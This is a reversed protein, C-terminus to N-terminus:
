KDQILAELTEYLREPEVPKSLHANMGAQLSRQVDEDFANATMAIIPVSKADPRDLARIAETASLGDLVPMQVDMLVADYAGAESKKFMDVAIQGNEAHDVTMERMGLLETMIEANIEMDEALLIHKGALEAKHRETLAGRKNKIAKKFEQLVNSAFLPKALFSDVGADLAKEIIDDWSYATLIIIASKDDYLERITRAVEVGDQGPMKLDILMLNYPQRRAKALKLLEYAESGGLCTDSVIGVEDLVLRAHECAVPDDDIILVRLDQARLEDAGDHGTKDSAKLTVTVTFTTGVGKESEVEIRGNMMEVINKTIAMGLGTSGYKNAKNEDEQSFADFLKPLFAKDMGIGTDKVTFRMTVNDEFRAAPEVSLSVAGDPPTFKVANGLINILVQKLKMDDGIYYDDVRGNIRCDYSLGKEVCQGNIMTNIQELMERFSFEENRITMRGSEIRSMDLIDNILSLLHKASGGIRELYEKTREPLEPDKLAISNLGIIANMPTRIEHSMSSLFSTKAANAEEAQALASKLAEQQEALAKEMEKRQTVDVFIGVYTIPTGDPRRTLQGVAHFWRWGRDKTLLRYEVDYVRKGTYDDITENFESLVRERDDEHLLDSWSELRDPFDATGSYGLMKRFTDSWTVGTMRGQEDFDMFWPGSNLMDHMLTLSKNQREQELLQDQLKLRAELAQHRVRSEAEATEKELLLRNTRKNQRAIVFFVALMALAVAVSQLLSRIIIGNTIASIQGSIVSERILYTLMWDTGKVPVYYMTEDIGNYTFTVVGERGAEFDASIREHSYGADFSAAKMAELLNRESSLGGLVVSTLSMGDKYYLNCFTTGNADSQLSLGELLVDMDIEMFCAVLTQGNFPIHEVPVAVIVKKDESRLNKISVEPASIANYDFGYEAINNQTGLSTYILGNTDVFAFKDLTYLKKMQAQFSRLHEMDSLAEADLLGIADRMNKFSQNLNSTVVQERRGALERLYFTSVSHVAQETSRGASGGVWLNSLVLLIAIVAGGILAFPMSRNKPVAPTNTVKEM